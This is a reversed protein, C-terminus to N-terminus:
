RLESSFVPGRTRSPSASCPQAEALPHRPDPTSPMRERRRCGSSEVGSRASPLITRHGILEVVDGDAAEGGVVVRAHVGLHEGGDGGGVAAVLDRVALVDVGLPQLLDERLVEALADLHERHEVARAGVDGASCDISGRQPATMLADVACMLESSPPAGSRTPPMLSSVTRVGFPLSVGSSMSSSAQPQPSSCRACGSTTDIVCVVSSPVAYETSSIRAIASWTCSRPMFSCMSPARREFAAAESPSGNRAKVRSAPTSTSLKPPVFFPASPASAITTSFGSADSPRFYRRLSLM